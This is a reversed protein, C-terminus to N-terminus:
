TSLCGDNGLFAHEQLHAERVSSVTDAPAPGSVAHNNLFHFLFFQYVSDEGALVSEQFLIDLLLTSIIAHFSNHWPDTCHQKEGQEGGIYTCK